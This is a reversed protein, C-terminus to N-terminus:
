KNVNDYITFQYRFLHPKPLNLFIEMFLKVPGNGVEATPGLIIHNTKGIIPLTTFISTGSATSQFVCM